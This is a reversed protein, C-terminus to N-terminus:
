GADGIALQLQVMDPEIPFVERVSIRPGKVSRQVFACGRAGPTVVTVQM